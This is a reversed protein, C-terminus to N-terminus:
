CCNPTMKHGNCKIYMLIKSTLMQVFKFIADAAIFFSCNFNWVNFPLFYCNRALRRRFSVFFPPFPEVYTYTCIITQQLRKPHLEAYKESYPGEIVGFKLDADVSVINNVKAGVKIMFIELRGV